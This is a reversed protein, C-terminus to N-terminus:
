EVQQGLISNFISKIWKKQQQIFHKKLKEMEADRQKHLSKLNLKYNHEERITALKWELDDTLLTVIGKKKSLLQGFYTNVM